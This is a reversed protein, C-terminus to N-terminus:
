KGLSRCDRPRLCFRLERFDGGSFQRMGFSLGDTGDFCLTDSNQDGGSSGETRCWRGGIRELVRFEEGGDEVTRKHEPRTPRPSLVKASRDVSPQPGDLAAADIRWLGDETAMWAGDAFAGAVPVAQQVREGTLDGDCEIKSGIAAKWQVLRAVRCTAEGVEKKRIPEADVPGENDMYEVVREVRYRWVKGAQFLPAYFSAVRVHTTGDGDSPRVGAAPQSAHAAGAMTLLVLARGPIM